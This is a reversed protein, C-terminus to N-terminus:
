RDTRHRAINDLEKQDKRAQRKNAQESMRESFKELSMARSRAERWSGLQVELEKLCEAVAQRQAVIAENLKHMFGRRSRINNIGTFEPSESALLAYERQYAELQALRQEEIQLAQRHSSVRSSTETEASKALTRVSRLQSRKRM